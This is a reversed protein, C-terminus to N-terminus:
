NFSTTTLAFLFYCVLFFWSSMKTAKDGPELARLGLSKGLATKWWDPSRDGEVWLYNYGWDITRNNRFVWTRVFCWKANRWGVGVTPKNAFTKLALIGFFWKFYPCNRQSYCVLNCLLLSTFWISWQRHM